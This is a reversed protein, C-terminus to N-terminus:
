AKPFLRVETAGQRAVKRSAADKSKKEDSHAPVGISLTVGEIAGNTGIIGYSEHRTNM